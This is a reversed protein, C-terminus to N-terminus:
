MVSDYHLPESAVVDYSSILWALKQEYLTTQLHELSRTIRM